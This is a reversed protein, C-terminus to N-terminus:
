RTRRSSGLVTTELCGKRMEALRLAHVPRAAGTRSLKFCGSDRGGSQSVFRGARARGFPRARHNFCRNITIPYHPSTKIWWRGPAAAFPMRLPASDENGATDSVSPSSHRNGM